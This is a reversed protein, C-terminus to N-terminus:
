RILPNVPYSHLVCLTAIFRHLQSTLTVGPGVGPLAVFLPLLKQQKFGRASADNYLWFPLALMLTIVDVTTMHVLRSEEFLKGFQYWEDGGASFFQFLFLGSLGLLAAAFWPSETIRLGVDM